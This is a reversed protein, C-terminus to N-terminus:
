NHVHAHLGVSVTAFSHPPMTLELSGAGVAGGAKVAMPTPRVTDQAAVTNVSWLSPAAIVTANATPLDARDGLKIQVAVPTTSNSHVRVVVLDKADSIASSVTITNNWRSGWADPAEAARPGSLTTALANPQWSDSIMAHVHGPPQLFTANPMFSAMGQTFGIEDSLDAQQMCFSAARLHIRSAIDLTNFWDNLDGSFGPSLTLLTATIQVHSSVCVSMCRYQV